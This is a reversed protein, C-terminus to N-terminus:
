VHVRFHRNVALLHLVADRVDTPRFMTRQYVPRLSMYGLRALDIDRDRDRVHLDWSDHALRSDAELALMGEVVMDVRGVGDISVQLECELGASRVIMRLVSEQGAEARGDILGGIHQVGEPARAFLEALERESVAGLFLANDISAIAHWPHQCTLVQALADVVGVSYENGADADLLPSWHTRVGDRERDTLRVFRDRPHRTRSADRGLHVHTFTKDIAFIGAVALASLCGTRGGVRVAELINRSTGPLAYHDRRVRILHGGRVATTLARGSAGAAMLEERSAIKVGLREFATQWTM